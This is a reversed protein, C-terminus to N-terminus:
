QSGEETDEDLFQAAESNIDKVTSIYSDVMEQQTRTKEISANLLNVTDINRAIKRNNINIQKKNDEMEEEANKIKKQLSEKKDELEDRLNRNREIADTAKKKLDKDVIDSKIEYLDAAKQKVRDLIFNIENIQTQWQEMDTEIESNEQQLTESEQRMQENANELKEIKAQAEEIDVYPIKQEESLLPFTIILIL